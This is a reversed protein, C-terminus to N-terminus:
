PPSGCRRYVIGRYGPNASFSSFIPWDPLRFYPNPMEIKGIKQFKGWENYYAFQGPDDLPDRVIVYQFDYKRFHFKRRRPTDGGRDLYQFDSGSGMVAYYFADFGIVKSGKPILRAVQSEVLQPDRNPKANLVLANKFLFIGGNLFVLGLIAYQTKGQYEALGRALYLLLIYLFPLSFIGYIGTDNVLYYFACVNILAIWFMSQLPIRWKWVALGSLFLLVALLPYQFVPFYLRSRVYLDALNEHYLKEPPPGFFYNWWSAIGGFGWFIWVTYLGLIGLAVTLCHVFSQKSINGLFWFSLVLSPGMLSVAVRPTTLIALGYCIGVGLFLMTQRIRLAKLLIWTGVAVWFLAFSDMRGSHINQLFIPDFGLLLIFFLRHQRSFDCEKLIRNLVMLFLGGFLLAPFRMQVLGFGAVKFVTAMLMFYLPGYAKAQPYYHEMLPSIQPNFEGTEMFHVTMSAFYTEDFWPVPSFKLAFWHYLFLFFGLLRLWGGFGLAAPNRMM